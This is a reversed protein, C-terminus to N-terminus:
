SNRQSKQSILDDINWDSNYYYVIKPPYTSQSNIHSALASVLRMKTKEEKKSFIFDGRHWSNSCSSSSNWPYIDCPTTNSLRTCVHAPTTSTPTTMNTTVCHMAHQSPALFFYFGQTTPLLASSKHHQPHYRLATTFPLVRYPTTVGGRTTTNTVSCCLVHQWLGAFFLLDTNNSTARHTNHHLRHYQSANAIIYISYLPVNLTRPTPSHLLPPPQAVHPHGLEFRKVNKTNTTTKLPGLRPVSVAFVNIFLLSVGQLQIDILMINLNM